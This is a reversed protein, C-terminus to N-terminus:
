ENFDKKQKVNNWAYLGLVAVLIGGFQVGDLKDTSLFGITAVAITVIVTIFKRGGFFRIWKAEGDRNFIEM